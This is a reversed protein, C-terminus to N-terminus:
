LVRDMLMSCCYVGCCLDRAQDFCLSFGVFCVVFGILIGGVGGVIFMCLCLCIYIQIDISNGISLYDIGM